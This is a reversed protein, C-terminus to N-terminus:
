AARRGAAAKTWLAAYEKGMRSLSFERIVRTRCMRAREERADPRSDTLWTEIADGLRVFDQPPAVWGTEGVMDRADGVDTVACPIGCAMAELVALPLSESRSPLVHLDLANMVSPVENTPGALIMRDAVGWREILRTLEPNQSEMGQGVLACRFRHGRDALQRVARVLNEHDKIPHWRAVCGILTEDRAIRWTKRIRERAARDPQFVTPDVGNPVVILKAASFGIKEHLKAGSHADSVISSPIASSLQACCRRVVRTKWSSRLPGMETSHVAWVVPPAGAFRAVIGGVLNAHDLRSQIVDPQYAAILRQLRRLAAITLSGRPMGLATVNVGRARLPQAYVGEDHLSVVEHKFGDATVTVLRYLVAEAGGQGLDTIIHLVKDIAAGRM